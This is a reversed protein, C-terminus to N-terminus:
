LRRADRNPRRPHTATYHVCLSWILLSMPHIHSMCLGNISQEWCHTAALYLLNRAPVCVCVCWVTAAPVWESLCAPDQKSRSHRTPLIKTCINPNSWGTSSTWFEAFRSGDSDPKSNPLNSTQSFKIVAQIHGSDVESNKREAGGRGHSSGAESMCANVVFLRHNTQAVVSRCSLMAPRCQRVVSQATPFDNSTDKFLGSM